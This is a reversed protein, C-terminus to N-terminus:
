KIETVKYGEKEVASKLVGDDVEKELTLVANKLVHSVKAEVVGDLSELVSKVRNECHSCMMGEITLTKEKIMKKEDGKRSNNNEKTKKVHVNKDHSSDDPKCRNLTLANIVVSFSSLGMAAAGIMPSLTLGAWSFVGAALPIGISNYVFAWFLNQKIKRLTRRSLRIASPVSRLGKKMLIVDGSEIAIDSGYGVAMGVDAATLAPADNIGDGCMAVLGNEKLGNIIKEKGDPLVGSFVEDVGAKGAIAKATNENDGTLMVVRIGMAKLEGVAQVADQKVQDAVAIVGYIKGNKEFLLPTKGSNSLSSVIGDYSSADECVSSIFRYSGGHAKGDGTEATVGSGQVIEFDSTEAISVDSESCKECVARALPHESKIELSYALTLLEDEGVGDATIVDTVVPKGETVTGTKDLAVVNIKGATELASATKFLIGNRAGVGSGVMVAVPTALGLACPCSIVLVSVARALAFSPAKGLILWVVATILSLCIVTPVFVGSVKDAIKAIPAKGASADGVMKIIQSLVTEEGVRKVEARFYGSKSITAGTVEDGVEKDVPVSEGTLASEDVSANGYVIVGDSPIKEGARVIFVDGKVLQKVPVTFERGDRFVVATEPALEMLAKIADTTRGKSYSELTKGLTILTVIMAASEFYLQRAYATLSDENGSLQAGTMLFLIVVSWAFSAFSGLAVLSDMNPAGRFLAKFGNLYYKQNIVMIVASLLLQLVALAVANDEFFHPVPFGFMSHGMSFYMLVLLFVLSVFFRNRLTVTEGGNNGVNGTSDSKGGVGYGADRVVKIISEDSVDGDVTLTNTLLNVECLTVGEVASVAKEVRSSCSACSMGTIKFKKM